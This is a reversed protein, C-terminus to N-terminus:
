EQFQFHEEIAKVIKQHTVLPDEAVKIIKTHYPHMYAYERYGKLIARMKEPSDGNQPQPNDKMLIIVLDPLVFDVAYEALDLVKWGLHSGYGQYALTSPIFRDALVVYSYALAPHVEREAIINLM